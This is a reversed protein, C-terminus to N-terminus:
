EVLDVIEGDKVTKIKLPVTADGNEQFKFEGISGSFTHTYLYDKIKEGDIGKESIAQALVMLADHAAAATEPNAPEQGYTEIFEQKVEETYGSFRPHWMDELAEGGIELEVPSMVSNSFLPLELELEKAQKAAAGIQGEFLNLFLADSETEKIKTLQTRFDMVDPAAREDIVFTIDIEQAGQELINFLDVTNDSMSTLAAIKKFGQKQIESTIADAYNQATTWLRFVYENDQTVKKASTTHAIIPIKTKDVVPAVPVANPSGMPGIVAVVKKVGTLHNFATIAKEAEGSLPVDQYLLKIQQNGLMGSNHVKQLALDLGQQASEGRAAGKGTLSAIVGIKIVKETPKKSVSYWIGAIIVIIIILWIITKGGRSRSESRSEEQGGQSNPEESM